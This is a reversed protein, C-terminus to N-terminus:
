DGVAEVDSLLTVSLIRIYRESKKAKSHLRPEDPKNLM